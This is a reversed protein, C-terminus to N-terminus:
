VKKPAKNHLMILWNLTTVRTEEWESLFQITLENVTAQYDFPDEESLKEGVQQGNVSASSFPSPPRSLTIPQSMPAESSVNAKATSSSTTNPTPVTASATVHTTSPTPSRPVPVRTPLLPVNVKENRTSATATTMVSPAKQVQDAPSPLLKIVDYLLKNTKNAVTQIMPVHHALNPLICPILRPTFPVMVEHAWM